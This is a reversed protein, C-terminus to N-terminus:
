LWLGGDEFDDGCWLNINQPDDDSEDTWELVRQLEIISFIYNIGMQQIILDKSRLLTQINESVTYSEDLLLYYRATAPDADTVVILKLGVSKYFEEIQERSGECASKIITCKILTLFEEDNLSLTQYVTENRNDIYSVRMNRNLAFLSGIKDLIDSTDSPNTKFSNLYELYTNVFIGRQDYYGDFIDLLNLVTEATPVIGTVFISESNSNGMMADFWIRFHEQFGNSNQLYLPLKRKYYEFTRLENPLISM